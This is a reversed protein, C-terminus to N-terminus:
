VCFGPVLARAGNANGYNGYGTTNVIYVYNGDKASRLWWWVGEGDLDKLRHRRDRFIEMRTDDKKFVAPSNWRALFAM